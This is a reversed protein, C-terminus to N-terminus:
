LDEDNRFNLMNRDVSEMRLAVTSRIDSFQTRFIEIWARWASLSQPYGIQPYGIQPNRDVSEMRLAVM